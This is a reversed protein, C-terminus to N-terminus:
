ARLQRDWTLRRGSPNRCVVDRGAGTRATSAGTFTVDFVVLFRRLRNGGDHCGIRRRHSIVVNSEGLMLHIFLPTESRAVCRM